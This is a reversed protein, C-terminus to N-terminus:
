GAALCIAAIIVYCRPLFSMSHYPQFPGELKFVVRKYHKFSEGFIGIKKCPKKKRTKNQNPNKKPCISTGLSPTSNSSYSEAEAVAMAIPLGLWTQLRCQLDRCHWIRLGSLFALSQVLTRISVLRTRLGSLWM